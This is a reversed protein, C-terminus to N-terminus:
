NQAELITKSPRHATLQCMCMKTSMGYGLGYPIFQRGFLEGCDLCQNVTRMRGPLPTMSDMIAQAKTLDPEPIKKSM